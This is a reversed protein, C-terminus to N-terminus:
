KWLKKYCNENVFIQLKQLDGSEIVENMENQPLHYLGNEHKTNVDKLLNCLERVYLQKQEITPPEMENDKPFRIKEIVKKSTSVGEREAIKM